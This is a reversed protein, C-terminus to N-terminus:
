LHGKICEAGEMLYKTYIKYLGKLEWDVFSGNADPYRILTVKSTALKLLDSQSLELRYTYNTYVTSGSINTKPYSDAISTSKLIENNEFKFSIESGKAVTVNYEGPYGFTMEFYITGQKLEYYITKSRYDYSFINDGTFADKKTECKQSFLSNVLLLSMLFIFTNKM